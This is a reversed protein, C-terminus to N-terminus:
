TSDPTLAMLDPVKNCLANFFQLSFFNTGPALALWLAGLSVHEPTCPVVLSIFFSLSSLVLIRFPLPALVVVDVDMGHFLVLVCPRHFLFTPSTTGLSDLLLGSQGPLPVFGLYAVAAVFELLVDTLSGQIM